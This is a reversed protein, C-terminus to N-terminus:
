AEATPQATGKAQQAYWDNLTKNNSALKWSDRGNDNRDLIVASAASPSSFIVDSTFVLIRANSTPALRGEKILRERLQRYGNVASENIGRAQSGSIVLIEGNSELGKAEIEFKADRLVVEIASQGTRAELPKREVPDLGNALTEPTVSARREVVSRDLARPLFLEFGLAPLIVSLQDFFYSMDSLESEPINEYPNTKTNELTVRDAHLAREIIRAELFLAHSKTLNFDKSSIVCAHEWFIKDESIAHQKIRSGLNDTEGVYVRLRGPIETDDGILLYVGTRNSEKRKLFDGLNSRPFRIVQGTWNIIEGIVVGNPTGDALFLRLTKGLATM